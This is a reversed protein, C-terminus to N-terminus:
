NSAAAVERQTAELGQRMTQFYGGIRTSEEDLAKKGVDGGRALAAEVRTDVQRVHVEVDVLSQRSGDLIAAVRRRVASPQAGDEAPREPLGDFRARLEAQEQRLAGLDRAWEARRAKLAARTADESRQCGLFSCVGGTGLVILARLAGRRNAVHNM